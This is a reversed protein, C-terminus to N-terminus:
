RLPRVEVKRFFVEAGESQLLIRGRTLSANTGGNVVTGNVKYSISAGDCDAELVNWQGVPREVDKPGRYGLTDTWAPDRGFWNIRGGAFDHTPAGPTFYFQKDKQEVTSTLKTKTKGGVLIIDGTGGEIM